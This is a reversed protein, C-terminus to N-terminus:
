IVEKRPRGRGRKSKEPAQNGGVTDELVDDPLDAFIGAKVSERLDSMLLSYAKTVKELAMFDAKDLEPKLKLRFVERRVLFKLDEAISLEILDHSKTM